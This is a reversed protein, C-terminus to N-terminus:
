LKVAILQAADRPAIAGTDIPLGPPPLVPSGFVGEARLKPYLAVDVLKGRLHRDAAVLRREIVDECAALELLFIEGGRTTVEHWLNAIFRAPCGRPM